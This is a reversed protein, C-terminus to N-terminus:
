AQPAQAARRGHERQRGEDRDRLLQELWTLLVPGRWGEALKRRITEAEETVSCPRSALTLARRGLDPIRLLSHM